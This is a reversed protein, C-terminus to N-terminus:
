AASSSSHYLFLKTMEVLDLFEHAIPNPYLMRPNVDIPESPHSYTLRTVWSICSIKIGLVTATPSTKRTVIEAVSQLKVALELTFASIKVPILAAISLSNGVTKLMKLHASLIRRVLRVGSIVLLTVDDDLKDIM